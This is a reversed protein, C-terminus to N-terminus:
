NVPASLRSPRRYGQWNPHRYVNQIGHIEMGRSTTDGGRYLGKCTGSHSIDKEPQSTLIKRHGYRGNEPGTVVDEEGAHGPHGSAHGPVHLTPRDPVPNACRLHKGAGCGHPLPSLRKSKPHECAKAPQIESPKEGMKDSTHGVGTGRYLGGQYPTQQPRVRANVTASDRVPTPRRLIINARRSDSDAWNNHRATSSDRARHRGSPPATKGTIQIDQGQRLCRTGDQDEPTRTTGDVERIAECIHPHPIGQEQNDSPRPHARGRIGPLRVGDGHNPRTPGTWIEEHLRHLNVSGRPPEGHHGAGKGTIPPGRSQLPAVVAGSRALIPTDMNLLYFMCPTIPTLGYNTVLSDARLLCAPSIHARSLADAVDNDVGPIHDYSIDVGLIAQVMWVARACDQLIKNNARGTRLVDVAARNDCRVMIHTGRDQQTLLTHLAVVVNAAELETINAAGDEVNHVQQGYARDGDTGGIGTLCADVLLVKSPARPPIIGVGNWESCFQTFWLLDGKMDGDIRIRDGKASRLASLLRSVFTRAPRICKAIFLLYGLLSQLQKKTIYSNNLAAYIHTLIQKVKAEPISLTMNEVNINIGLWKINQTPPQSKEEAEPLGLDKFLQRATDYDKRAAARDPSIIILDDLYM